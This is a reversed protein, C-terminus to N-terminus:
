GMTGGVAPLPPMPRDTEWVWPEPSAGRIARQKLTRGREDLYPSLLHLPWVEPGADLLLANAFVEAGPADYRLPKLFRRGQTVLADILPLEHVGEVPIWHDSTMMLSAADIEYTFERRARILAAMVLRVRLGTDADRAEFLPAHRRAVRQWFREEVLLPADPMHRIWVRRGDEVAEVAKFEGIVLALPTTGVHPKLVSLKERRRRAADAKAAEDFVEPAFLRDTLPGGAVDIQEAAELLFRRIVGWNRRGAMAPTWRNFGARDFLFHMLARLSMRRATSEVQGPETPSRAGVGHGPRRTWPFDVRLEARGTEHEIVASGSLVGLGSQAAEPEFSPCRPHHRDGTNPMRKVVFERLQAVYMEIGGPMCLCRPREPTGYIAGLAEHFGAEEAQWVKGRISFRQLEAKCPLAVLSM